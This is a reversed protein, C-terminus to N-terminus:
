FLTREFQWRQYAYDAAGLIFLAVALAMAIRMALAWSSSLAAGLSENNLGAIEQDRGRLFWWAVAAVATVKCVMLLTRMLKDWSFLRDLHFPSVREWDLALKAPNIRFGAQGVNVAILAAFILGLLMGAISLMEGFKGAFLQQVDENTLNVALRALGARIQGLLGNGLGQALMMVGGIGAILVVASSLDSSFAFRGEEDAQERKRPSPAETRSEFEQNEAM